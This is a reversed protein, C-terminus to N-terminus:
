DTVGFMKHIFLSIIATQRSFFGWARRENLGGM